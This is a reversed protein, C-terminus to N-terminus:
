HTKKIRKHDAIYVRIKLKNSLKKCKTNDYDKKVLYLFEDVASKEEKHIKEWLVIDERMFQLLKLELSM